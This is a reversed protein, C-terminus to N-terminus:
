KGLSGEAVLRDIENEAQVWDDLSVDPSFGRREAIFYAAVEIYNQRQEPTVSTCACTAAETAAPEIAEAAPTPAQVVAEVHDAAAKGKSKSKAATTKATSSKTTVM